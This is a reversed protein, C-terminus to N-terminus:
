TEEPERPEQSQKIRSEMKPFARKVGTYVIMCTLLVIGMILFYAAFTVFQGKSVDNMEEFSLIAFYLSLFICITLVIAAVSEFKL